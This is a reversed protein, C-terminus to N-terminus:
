DWAMATNYVYFPLYYSGDAVNDIDVVTKKSLKGLIFLMSYYICTCLVFLPFLDLLLYFM